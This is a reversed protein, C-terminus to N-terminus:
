RTQWFQPLRKLVSSTSTVLPPQLGTGMVESFLVTSPPLIMIDFSNRACAFSINEFQFFYICFDLSGGPLRSKKNVRERRQRYFLVRKFYNPLCCHLVPCFDTHKDRFRVLGFVSIYYMSVMMVCTLLYPLYLKRNKRIGDVALRLYFYTRM